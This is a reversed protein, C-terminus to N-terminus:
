ELHGILNTEEVTFKDGDHTLVYLGLNHHPFEDMQSLPQNLIVCLLIRIARGHMCVLVTEEDDSLIRDIAPLQRSAVDEPSEGGDIQLATNGSQWEEIIKNFYVDQGAIVYKGEKTGWNIEDLGSLETHPLGEELFNSVSQHTRILSSTYIKEFPIHKYAEYFALAQKRGEENLPADIGSGQVIGKKNYDTQGHRVLYIKKTKLERYKQTLVVWFYIKKLLSWNILASIVIASKFLILVSM